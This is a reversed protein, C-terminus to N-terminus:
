EFTRELHREMKEMVISHTYNDLGELIEDVNNLTKVPILGCIALLEYYAYVKSTFTEQNSIDKLKFTTNFPQSAVVARNIREAEVLNLHKFRAGSHVQVLSEFAPAM